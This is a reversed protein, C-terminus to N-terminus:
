PDRDRTSWRAGAPPGRRRSAGGRERAPLAPARGHSQTVVPTSRGPSRSVPDGAATAGGRPLSPAAHERRGAPAPPTPNGGVGGHSDERNVAGPSSALGGDPTGSAPPVRGRGKGPPASPLGLGSGGGRRRDPTTGWATGRGSM